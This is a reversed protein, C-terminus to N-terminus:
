TGSTPIAPVNGHLYCLFTGTFNGSHSFRVGRTVMVLKPRALQAGPHHIRRGYIACLVKFGLVSLFNRQVYYRLTVNTMYNERQQGGFHALRTLGQQNCVPNMFPNQRRGKVSQSWLFSISFRNRPMTMLLIVLKYGQQGPIVSRFGDFTVIVMSIWVNLVEMTPFTLFVFAQILIQKPIQSCTWVVDTCFCYSTFGLACLSSLRSTQDKTGFCTPLIVVQVCETASALMCLHYSSHWEVRNM